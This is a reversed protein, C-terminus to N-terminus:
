IRCDLDFTKLVYPSLTCSKRKAKLSLGRHARSTGSWCQLLESVIANVYSMELRGM